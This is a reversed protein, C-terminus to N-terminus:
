IELLLPGLCLFMQLVSYTTGRRHRLYIYKFSDIDARHFPLPRDFRRAPGDMVNYVHM